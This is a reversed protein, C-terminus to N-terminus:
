VGAEPDALRLFRAPLSGLEARQAVPAQLNDYHHYSWGDHAGYQELLARRLAGGM